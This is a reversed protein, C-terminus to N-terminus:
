VTLPDILTIPFKKFHPLNYTMLTTIGYCQMAAVYRADHAQFGKIQHAEVLALWRDPLEPNDPLLTFLSRFRHIWRTVRPPEMELGNNLKSRSAFAWFEYLCQPVIVLNDTRKKKFVATRTAAFHPSDSQAMRVLINNDLLIM